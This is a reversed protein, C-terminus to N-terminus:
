GGVIVTDHRPETNGNTKLQFLIANTFVPSAPPTASHVEPTKIPPATPSDPSGGPASQIHEDSISASVPVDVTVKLKVPAVNSSSTPLMVVAPPASHSKRPILSSIILVSLILLVCFMRKM